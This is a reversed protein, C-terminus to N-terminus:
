LAPAAQPRVGGWRMSRQVAATDNSVPVRGWATGDDEAFWESFFCELTFMFEQSAATSASAGRLIMSCSLLLKCSHTSSNAM